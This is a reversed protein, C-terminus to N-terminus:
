SSLVAFLSGGFPLPMRATLRQELLSLGVLLTNLPTPPITARGIPARTLREALRVVLKAPFVWHFFHRLEDVTLGASRALEEIDRRRYRRLHDNVDDQSTWLIPFAPVTVLVLGGPELLARARALAARPDALHELLDLLLILGYTRGPEFSADFPCVHITGLSRGRTTVVEPNPEVGDVTGLHTLCPFLLGDGCGVDLISGFGAPPTRRALERVLLRERARWWWHREYLERYQRAYLEDM